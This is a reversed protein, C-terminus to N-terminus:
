FYNIVRRRLFNIFFFLLSNYYIICNINVLIFLCNISIMHFISLNYCKDFKNLFYILTERERINQYKRKCMVNIRIFYIMKQINLIFGTFFIINFILLIFHRTESHSGVIINMSGYMLDRLNNVNNDLPSPFQARATFGLSIAPM